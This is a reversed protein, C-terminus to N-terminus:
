IFLYIEEAKHTESHMYAYIRIWNYDGLKFKMAMKLIFTQCILKGWWPAQKGLHLLTNHM